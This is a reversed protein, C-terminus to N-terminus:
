QRAGSGWCGAVLCLVGYATIVCMFDRAGSSPCLLERFINLMNYTCYVMWYCRTPKEERRMHLSARVFVCWVTKGRYLIYTFLQSPVAYCIAQLVIHINSTENWVDWRRLLIYPNTKSCCTNKYGATIAVNNISWSTASTELVIWTFSGFDHTILQTSQKAGPPVPWSL